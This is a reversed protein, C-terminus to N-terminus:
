SQIATGSQGGPLELPFASTRVTVNTAGAPGTPGQPGIPGAPGTPGAPGIPGVQNWTILTQNTQCTKAQATDLLALLRQGNIQTASMCGSIIGGPGPISAFVNTGLVLLLCSAAVVGLAIPKRPARSSAGRLWASMEWRRAAM